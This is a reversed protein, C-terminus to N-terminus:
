PMPAEANGELEAKAKRKKAEKVLEDLQNLKAVVDKETLLADFEAECTEGLKRVFDSHLDRLAGGCYTAPTPFCAAFNEYQNVPKLANKLALAYGDRLKRAREGPATTIPATPPPSNTAMGFQILQKRTFGVTAVNANNGQCEQTQVNTTCPRTTPASIWQVSNM